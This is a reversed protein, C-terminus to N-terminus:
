HLYIIYILYTNGFVMYLLIIYYIYDKTNSLYDQTISHYFGFFKRRMEVQHMFLLLKYLYHCFASENYFPGYWVQNERYLYIRMTSDSTNVVPYKINRIMLSIFNTNTKYCCVFKIFCTLVLYRHKSLPYPPFCYLTLLILLYWVRNMMYMLWSISIVM